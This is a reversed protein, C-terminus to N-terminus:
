NILVQIRYAQILFYIFLYFRYLLEDVIQAISPFFFFEYVPCKILLSMCAAKNEM